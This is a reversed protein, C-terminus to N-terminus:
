RPTPRRKWPPSSRAPWSAAASPTSPSPRAPQQGAGRDARGHLEALDFECVHEAGIDRLIKAQEASRVINVLGIGDKLCIKNLMQGLNSAAATHVLAQTAKAAAHDRDHRARDASQRLLVRRRRRERGGAARRCTPAKATRYQAYMAGGLMAVTKGILAQADRRGAKVVVGAGENGVPMSQDLRAAM